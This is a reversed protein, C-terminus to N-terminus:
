SGVAEYYEEVSQRVIETQDPTLLVPDPMLYEGDVPSIDPEKNEKECAVLMTGAFLLAACIMIIKKTKM